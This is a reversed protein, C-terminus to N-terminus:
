DELQETAQADLIAYLRDEADESSALINYQEYLYKKVLEIRYSPIYWEDAYKQIVQEESLLEFGDDPICPNMGDAVEEDFQWKAREWAYANQEEEDLEFESKKAMEDLWYMTIYHIANERNEPEHASRYWAKFEEITHVNEIGESEILSDSIEPALGIRMIRQIQVKLQTDHVVVSVVEGKRHGILAKEAEKAYPMQRGPYVLVVTRGNLNTGNVCTCYVGDGAEVQDTEELKKHREAIESLREQIENERVRWQTNEVPVSENKYDFLKTVKSNKIETQFQSM